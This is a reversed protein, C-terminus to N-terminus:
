RSTASAGEEDPEPPLKIWGGDRFEVGARELALRIAQRTAAIPQRAGREFDIVTREAVAASKALEDRSMDIGVRAARCQRATITM